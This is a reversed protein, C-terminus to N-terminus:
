EATEKAESGLSCLYALLSSLDDESLIGGYAPMLSDKPKELSRLAEKRFSRIDDGRDMIHIKYLNENMWVGEVREGDATEVRVTRYRRAVDKSPELLAVKLQEASFMAGAFSMDPGLRGGDSGVTHCALCSGRENFVARGVQADGAGVECSSTAQKAFDRVFLLIRWIDDEEVWLGPMETGIIGGEIIDFLEADSNGHRYEGRALRAGRGTDGQMGHCNGCHIRYLRKGEQYDEASSM